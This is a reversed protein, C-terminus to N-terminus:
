ILLTRFSNVISVMTFTNLWKEPLRVNGNTSINCHYIQTKCIVRPMKEPYGEPITISLEFIGGEYPSNKTGEVM